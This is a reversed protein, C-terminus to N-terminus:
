PRGKSLGRARKLCRKTAMRAADRSIEHKEGITEWDCGLFYREWLFGKCPAGLKGLIATVDEWEGVLATAQHNDVAGADVISAVEGDDLPVFTRKMVERFRANLKNRAVAYFWARFEGDSEGRFSEGSTVVALFTEQLVDDLMDAPCRSMLFRRVLPGIRRIISEGFREKAEPTTAGQFAQVLEILSAM